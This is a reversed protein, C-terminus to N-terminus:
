VEIQFSELAPAVELLMTAWALDDNSHMTVRLMLSRLNKFATPLGGPIVPNQLFM